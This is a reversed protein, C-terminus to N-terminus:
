SSVKASLGIQDFLDSLFLNYDQLMRINLSFFVPKQTASYIITYAPRGCAHEKACTACIKNACTCVGIHMSVGMVGMHLCIFPRHWAYARM